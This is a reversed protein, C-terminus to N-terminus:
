QHAEALEALQEAVVTWGQEFGMEKHQLLAEETWHRATATYRTGDGEPTIELIGVMFPAQPIWDHRFGDTFVLRKEPTAELVVGHNAMEQGEPGFMTTDFRGGATLELADVRARWPKPCWWEAMQEVMVQWVRAVPADIFKNISLAYIETTM